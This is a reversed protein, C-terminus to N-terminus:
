FDTEMVYRSASLAAVAGEGMSSIIQANERIVNGCAFIGPFSTEMELNVQIFGKDDKAVDVFSTSPAYGIYIFIADLDMRSTEGSKVNRIRIGNVQKEGYIEDVVSDLMMKVNETNLIQQQLIRESRFSERRHFLLIEQGIGALYLAGLLASEGGGVVAIRKGEYGFGACHACYHVGKRTFEKEGPVRLHRPQGGSAVIVAKSIYSERSGTVKWLLGEQRVATVEEPEVITVGLSKVHRELRATLDWGDLEPSGPFNEIREAVAPQGGVVGKELIVTTLLNRAAYVGASM